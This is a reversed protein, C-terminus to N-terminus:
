RKSDYYEKVKRHGVHLAIENGCGINEQCVCWQFPLLCPMRQTECIARWLVLPGRRPNKKFLILYNMFVNVSPLSQRYLAIPSANLAFGLGFLDEYEDYDSDAGIKGDVSVLLRPNAPLCYGFRRALLDIKFFNDSVIRMDSDLSVVVEDSPFPAFLIGHVKFFDNCRWGMRSGEFDSTDTKFKNSTFTFNDIKLDFDAYIYFKLKEGFSSVSRVTESEIIDEKTKGFEAMVINM